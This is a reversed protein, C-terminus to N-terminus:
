IASKQRKQGFACKSCKIILRQHGEEFGLEGIKKFELFNEDNYENFDEVSLSFLNSKSRFFKIFDGPGFAAIINKLIEIGNM